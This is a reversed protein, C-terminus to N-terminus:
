RGRPSARGAGSSARAHAAEVVGARQSIRSPPRRPDIMHALTHNTIQGLFLITIWFASSVAAPLGALGAAAAPPPAPRAQGGAGVHTSEIGISKKMPAALWKRASRDAFDPSTKQTTASAIMTSTSILASTPVGPLPAALGSAVTFPVRQNPKM